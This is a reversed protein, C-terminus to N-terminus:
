LGHNNRSEGRREVQQVIVGQRGRAPRAQAELMGIPSATQSCKLSGKWGVSLDNCFLSPDISHSFALSFNTIRKLFQRRWTSNEVSFYVRVRFGVLDKSENKKVSRYLCTWRRFHPEVQKVMEFARPQKGSLGSTRHPHSRKLRFIPWM